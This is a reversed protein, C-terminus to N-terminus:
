ESQENSEYIPTRRAINTASDDKIRNCYEKFSETLFITLAITYDELENSSIDTECFNQHTLKHRLKSIKDLADTKINDIKKNKEVVDTIIDID